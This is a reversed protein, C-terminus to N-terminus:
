PIRPPVRSLDSLDFYERICKECCFFMPEGLAVFDKLGIVGEDVRITDVGVDLERRCNACTKKEEMNIM